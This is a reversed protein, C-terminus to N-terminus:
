DVELQLTAYSGAVASGIQTIDVTLTDGALVNPFAPVVVASVKQGALITPFTLNFISTGNKKVDFILSAGTPAVAVAAVVSTIIGSHPVPLPVIGVGVTLVGRITMAILSPGDPGQPGIPGTRFVASLKHKSDVHVFVRDKYAVVVRQPGSHFQVLDM